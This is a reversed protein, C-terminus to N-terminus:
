AMKKGKMKKRELRIRSCKKPLSSQILRKYDWTIAVTINKFLHRFIILLYMIPRIRGMKISNLNLSTPRTRGQM